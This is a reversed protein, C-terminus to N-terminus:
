TLTLFIGGKIKQMEIETFGYSFKLPNSYKYTHTLKCFDIIAGLDRMEDLYRHIQRESLGVKLALSKATGTRKQRILQDIREIIRLKEILTM